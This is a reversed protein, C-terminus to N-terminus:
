IFENLFVTYKRLNQWLPSNLLPLKEERSLWLGPMIQVIFKAEPGFDQMAAQLGSCSRLSSGRLGQFYSSIVIAIASWGKVADASSHTVLICNQTNFLLHWVSSLFSAKAKRRNHVKNKWLLWKKLQWSLTLLLKDNEWAQQMSILSWNMFTIQLAFRPGARGHRCMWTRAPCGLAQLLKTGRLAEAGRRQQTGATPYAAPLGLLQLSWFHKVRQKENTMLFFSHSIWPSPPIVESTHWPSLCSKQWAPM